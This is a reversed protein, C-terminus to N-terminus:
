GLNRCAGTGPFLGGHDETGTGPIKKKEWIPQSYVVQGGILSHVSQQGCLVGHQLQDPQPAGSCTRYLGQKSRSEGGAGYEVLSRLVM